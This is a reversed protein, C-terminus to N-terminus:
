KLKGLQKRIDEAQQALEERQKELAKEEPSRVEAAGTARAGGVAPNAKDDWRMRAKRLSALENDIEEIRMTTQRYERRLASSALSREAGTEPQSTVEGEDDEGDEAVVPHSAGSSLPTPTGKIVATPEQDAPVDDPVNSFHVEGKEDVWRYITGAAAPEPLVIALLFLCVLLGGLTRSTGAVIGRLERPDIRARGAM